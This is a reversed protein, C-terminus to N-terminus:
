NQGKELLFWTMDDQPFHIDRHYIFGYDVLTLDEFLDLMEGAFDRKFLKGTHGRYVVETPSPNYYESLLIYRRSSHYLLRYVDQLRDPNIHILLGKTFVFDWATPPDFDLISIQHLDVGPLNAQLERAAKENIEIASLRAFPLLTKLAMLNLGINSGFELVTKVEETRSLIRAFFAANAAIWNKGRNRDTYENGFEGQWFKEQDTLHPM